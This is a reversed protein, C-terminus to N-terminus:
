NLLRGRACKAGQDCSQAKPENLGGIARDRRRQKEKRQERTLFDSRRNVSARSFFRVRVGYCDRISSLRNLPM